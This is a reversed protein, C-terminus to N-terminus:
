AAWPGAVAQRREPPQLAMPPTTSPALLSPPELAAPAAHQMVPSGGFPNPAETRAPAPTRAVPAPAVPAPTTLLHSPPPLVWRVEEDAGTPAVTQAHLAGAGLVGSILLAAFGAGRTRALMQMMRIAAM